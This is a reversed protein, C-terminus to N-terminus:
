KPAGVESKQEDLEWRNRLLFTGRTPVVGTGYFDTKLVNLRAADEVCDVEQGSIDLGVSIKYEGPVLPLSSIECTFTQDGIREEHLRNPDYASHATCIRQGSPTDFAIWADFSTCYHELSFHIVAKLGAGVPLEGGLPSGDETFLELRKLLPQFKSFRGPSASLDILHSGSQFQEGPINQLYYRVADKATGTFVLSGQQLVVARKCLAEVAALNHSVFLVTRDQTCAEAMKGLCKKQFAMDGVALVEDVVLIEPDLHAAISFALRVYMGSSYRKVPTDLFDGIGAFALIEDFKAEIESKRMGLISGNLYINERGTLEPHFGTGVELLSAMRGRVRVHGETPDTIRSLIKLLTSKGAGNSGIIAITDGREVDLSVDKLAWFVSQAKRGDDASERRFARFPATLTHMLAERLNGYLGASEGLLYQKSINRVEIIPAM